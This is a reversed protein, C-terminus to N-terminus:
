FKMYLFNSADFGAGYYGFILVTFVATLYVAWRLLLPCSALSMRIGGKGDAANKEQLTSVIILVATGILLANIDHRELGLEYISGDFFVWLNFVSFAKKILAIMGGIGGATTIFRGGCFFLFTRVMCLYRYWPADADIKLASRLSILQKEFITTVTLLFGWYCGWLLYGMGSGHWLGTCIWTIILAVTTTANRGAASGYKKRIVKSFKKVPASITVPMCIYDKFWAGLTIHWRRWFQAVNTSFFPRKFNESLTVGFCQSVGLAIDMCGSFDTYIMLASLIVGLPIMVGSCSSDASFISGVLVSCRDAIMLKKFFGWLARQLGFCINRYDFAHGESLRGGLTSHRPIPGEVIHPFYLMYLLLKLPNREARDKRWLVDALYGMVSFSYYSIGLPMSRICKTYVLLGLIVAIAPFFFLRAKNKLKAGDGEGKEYVRDMLIASIYAAIFSLSVFIFGRLGSLSYFLLSGALLVLYRLKLPFLYYLVMMIFVFIIFYASIYSM